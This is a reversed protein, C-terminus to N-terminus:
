TTRAENRENKKRRTVRRRSYWNSFLIYWRKGFWQSQLWVLDELVDLRQAMPLLNREIYLGLIQTVDCRTCLKGGYSAREADDKQKAREMRRLEGRSMNEKFEEQVEEPKNLLLKLEHSKLETM